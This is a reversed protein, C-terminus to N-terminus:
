VRDDEIRGYAASHYILPRGPHSALRTVEGVYIIHDGAEHSAHLRCELVAIAGPIVPVGNDGDAFTLGEFKAAGRTAFRKSIERQDHALVSVNFVGTERLGPNADSRRDICVLVLPPTLSVSCFANVTLGQPRGQADRSTVVTVGTAFHSLTRRFESDTIM